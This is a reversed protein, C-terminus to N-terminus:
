FDRTQGSGVAVTKTTTLAELGMPGRAHLKQTSIGVEAGLGFQGGDSFRTSANWYVVAADVRALFQQGVQADNTVISESHGTGYKGIHALAEEVDSVIRCAIQPSLYEDTWDSENAPVADAIMARVESDGHWIVQHSDLLTKAAPLFRDKISRHVLLTEVANCVAPNGMKSDQLVALAMELDAREDVYLHCNGVGTAIVPVTAEENVMRILEPGGRPILLDLGTLHMLQRTKVRDPDALGIIADTPLGAQALARGWLDVLIANSHVAERGGKLLIANGSKLALSAAEM